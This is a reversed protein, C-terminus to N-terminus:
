SSASTRMRGIRPLRELGRRGADLLQRREDADFLRVPGLLGSAVALLGGLATWPGAILLAPLAAAILLGRDIGFGLRRCIIWLVGLMALKSAAAAWVVGDLGHTPLWVFNMGVNAVLGIAIGVCVLRSKEACWLWNNSIYTMGTWLACAMTWPFIAQGFGFKDKLATHFFLPSAILLGIAISLFALVFLKLVLRLRAAVATRGGAEWDKVLHPTLLTSLLDALGLFLIPIVRATHYQGVLALAEASSLGGHHIIMYRDAMEFSNMLWNTVWVWFAFPVLRSWLAAQALPPEHRPLDRWLRVIWVMGVAFAVFCGAGFGAVAAAADRLGSAMLALGVVAFLFANIFQLYSVIRTSRLATFLCTVFNFAIFGVLSVTLVVVLHAEDRTGFLLEATWPASVILGACLLGAPVLSAWTTRRLFTRLQGTGRYTEAYRGFSGPLGLVALPSALVMFSLALDWQGLQEADLWRCFLIGRLFGVMRQVITLALLIM